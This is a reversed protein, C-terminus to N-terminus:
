TLSPNPNRNLPPRWVGCLLIHTSKAVDVVQRCTPVQSLTTSTLLHIYHVFTKTMTSLVSTTETWLSSERELQLTSSAMEKLILGCM